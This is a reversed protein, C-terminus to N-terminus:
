KEKKNICFDRKLVIGVYTPGIYYAKNSNEFFEKTITKNTAIRVQSSNNGQGGDINNNLNGNSYNGFSINISGGEIYYYDAYYVREFLGIRIIPCLKWHSCLNFVWGVGIGGGYMIGIKGMESFLDTDFYGVNSYAEMFFKDYDKNFYKRFGAHWLDINYTKGLLSWDSFSGEVFFSMKGFYVEAGINARFALDSLLDNYVAFVPKTHNINTITKEVYYNHINDRYITDRIYVTDKVAIEKSESLIVEIYTARLKRYDREDLGSRALFLEYDNSKVIKENSVISSIYSCIVEARSEALRINNEYNGEPSASGIILIRDINTRNRIINPIITETYYVYNADEIIRSTNVVFNITTSLNQAYCYVPILLM